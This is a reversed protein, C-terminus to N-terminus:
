PCAAAAVQQRMQGMKQSMTTRGTRFNGVVVSVIRWADPDAFEIILTQQPVFQSCTYRDTGRCHPAPRKPDEFLLGYGLAANVAAGDCETTLTGTDLDLVVMPGSVYTTM